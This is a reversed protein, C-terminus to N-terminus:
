LRRGGWPVAAVVGPGIASGDGGGAASGTSTTRQASSIRYGPPAPACWGTSPDLQAQNLDAHLLNFIVRVLRRKLVRLAERKSKGAAQLRM